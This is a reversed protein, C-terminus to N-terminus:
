KSHNQPRTFIYRITAPVYLCDLNLNPERWIETCKPVAPMYSSSRCRLYDNTCYGGALVM